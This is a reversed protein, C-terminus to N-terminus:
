SLRISLVSCQKFFIDCPCWENMLPDSKPAPIRQFTRSATFTIMLSDSKCGWHPLAVSESLFKTTLVSGTGKVGPVRSNLLTTLTLASHVTSVKFAKGQLSRETKVFDERFTPSSFPPFAVPRGSAQPRHNLWGPKETFLHQSELTTNPLPKVPSVRWGFVSFADGTFCLWSQHRTPPTDHFGAPALCNVHDAASTTAWSWQQHHAPSMGQWDSISPLTAKSSSARYCTLSLPPLLSHKWKCLHRNMGWIWVQPWFGMGHKAEGTYCWFPSHWSVKFHLHLPM